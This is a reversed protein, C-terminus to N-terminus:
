GAGWPEGGFAEIFRPLDAAALRDIGAAAARGSGGFRACFDDAGRPAHLPARVSVAYDGSATPCLVAQAQGPRARVLDHALSGMIRRSWAVDPLVRVSAHERQWAPVVTLALALDARLCADLHAVVPEQDVMQLPDVHRAMIRYLEAPAIHVDQLSSGYANYNIAVGLRRLEARQATALGSREGLAEAERTLNDGYAGVIAWRRFAGDLHRDM